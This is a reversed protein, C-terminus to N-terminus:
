LSAIPSGAAEETHASVQSVCVCVCMSQESHFGAQGQGLSGRASAVVFAAKSGPGSRLGSIDEAGCVWRDSSSVQPVSIM